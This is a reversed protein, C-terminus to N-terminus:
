GSTNPYPAIEADLEAIFSRKRCHKDRLRAICDRFATAGVADFVPKGELLIKTATRYSQKQKKDVFADAAAEFVESAAAPTSGALWRAARLLRDPHRIRGVATNRLAQWDGEERYVEALTYAYQEDLWAPRRSEGQLLAVTKNRISSECGARTAYEMLQRYHKFKVERWFVAEQAAVAANWEGQGAYVAAWLAKRSRKEDPDLTDARTLWTAAGGPDENKLYLGAIRECDIETTATREELRILTDWDQEEEARETLYHSLRLHPWKDDFSAGAPLDPLVELGREIAKYFAALGADGLTEAYVNPVGSFQDWPDDLALTLLHNAREEPSWGIRQLATIHLNRLTAQATYRCGGSDDIQELARDLRHIGHLAVDLLVDPPVQNAIGDISELVAELRRFWAIVKGPEFINRPRTVKTISQKVSRASLSGDTLMAQNRLGERLRPDRPLLELLHSALMEPDQQVLYAKLIKNEQERESSSEEDQLDRLALATAVCHKCFEIGESAPCNCSGDLERGKHRLEVRYHQTGSVTAFTRHKGSEFEVVRGDLYYSYGRDFPGAGALSLLM